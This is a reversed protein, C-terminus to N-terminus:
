AQSYYLLYRISTLQVGGSPMGAERLSGSLTGDELSKAVREFVLLTEDQPSRHTTLLNIKEEEKKNSELRSNLSVM